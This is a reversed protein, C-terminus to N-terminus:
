LSPCCCAGCGCDGCGSACAECALSSCCDCSCDCTLCTCIDCIDQGKCQCCACTKRQPPEYRPWWNQRQPPAITEKEDDLAPVSMFARHVSNQLQQTFRQKELAPLPLTSLASLLRNQQELVAGQAEQRSTGTATLANFAGRKRDRVRDQLADLLYILRGFADGLHGLAETHAQNGGAFILGTATGTPAALADLTTPSAELQAQHAQQAFLRELPVGCQELYARAKGFASALGREALGWPLASSDRDARKDHLVFETLVVNASAAYHLAPPIDGAIPLTLCRRAVFSRPLSAQDLALLLEGLFVADYNLTLRATQGFLRGM